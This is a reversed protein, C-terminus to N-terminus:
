IWSVKWAIALYMTFKLQWGKRLGFKKGLEAIASRSRKGTKLSDRAAKFQEFRKNTISFLVQAVHKCTLAWGQDNILFLTAAGPEIEDCEWSRGIIHIPRTFRLVEEIAKVFM